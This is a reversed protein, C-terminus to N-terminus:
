RPARSTQPRERSKKEGGWLTLIRACYDTEGLIADYLDVPSGHDSTKRLRDLLSIFGRLKKADHEDLIPTM